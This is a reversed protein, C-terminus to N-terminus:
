ADGGAPPRTVPYRHAAPRVPCTDRDLVERHQREAAIDPAQQGYVVRLERDGSAAWGEPTKERRPSGPDRGCGVSSPRRPAPPGFACPRFPSVRLGGLRPQCRRWRRARPGPRAPRARDRESPLAAAGGLSPRPGEAGTPRQRTRALLAAGRRQGGRSAAAGWSRAREVKHATHACSTSRTPRLPCRRGTSQQPPRGGLRGACGLRIPGGGYGGLRPGFRRRGRGPAAAPGGTLGRGGAPAAAPGGVGRGSV